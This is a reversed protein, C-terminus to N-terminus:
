SSYGITLRSGIGGTATRRSNSALKRNGRSERVAIAQPRLIDQAMRVATPAGTKNGAAFCLLYIPTGKSNCLLLPNSAVKEFISGLRELFYAEIEAFDAIKTEREEEGFLSLQTTKQYFRQRWADEGFTRTLAKGWNEPPPQRNMVLRNVAMGIPFLIWLDVAKTRALAEITSWEVQMGYPDLFVVARFRRWDTQQCWKKLVTNADGQEIGICSARSLYLEKLKELEAVRKKSHEIFLYRDFAPEVELAIRSSGKQLDIFEPDFEIDLLPTESLSPISSDKRDGTGAFADVFYTTFYAARENGHFITTYAHLYKRVRELKERTWDGGFVHESMCDRRWEKTAHNAVQIENNNAEL